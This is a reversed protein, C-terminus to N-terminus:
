AHIYIVLRDFEKALGPSEDGPERVEGTIHMRLDWALDLHKQADVLRGLDREASALHYLTRAHERQSDLANAFIAEATQFAAIAESTQGSLKLICGVKHQSIRYYFGHEGVL